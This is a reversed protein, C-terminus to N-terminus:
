QGLRALNNLFLKSATKHYEILKDWQPVFLIQTVDDTILDM